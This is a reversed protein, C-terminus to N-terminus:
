PAAVLKEGMDFGPLAALSVAGQHDFWARNPNICECTDAVSGRIDPWIV